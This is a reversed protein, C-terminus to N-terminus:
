KKLSSDVFAGSIESERANQAACPPRQMASGPRQAPTGQQPTGSFSLRRPKPEGQQPTSSMRLQQRGNGVGSVVPQAPATEFAMTVDKLGVYPSIKFDVLGKCTIMDVYKNEKADYCYQIQMNYRVLYPQNEGPLIVIKVGEHGDNIVVGDQTKTQLHNYHNFIVQTENPPFQLIRGLAAYLLFTDIEWSIDLQKKSPWLAEPFM